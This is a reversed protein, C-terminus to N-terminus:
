FFLVTAYFFVSVQRDDCPTLVCLFITDVDHLGIMYYSGSGYPLRRALTVLSKARAASAYCQLPISISTAMRWRRFVVLLGGSWVRRAWLVLSVSLGFFPPLISTTAPSAAALCAPLGRRVGALPWRGGRRAEANEWKRERGGSGGAASEIGRREERSSPPLPCTGAPPEIGEEERTAPVAAAAATVALMAM